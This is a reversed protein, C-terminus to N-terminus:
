FRRGSFVGIGFSFPSPNYGPGYGYGYRQEEERLAAYMRTLAASRVRNFDGYTSEGRYLLALAGSVESRAYQIHPSVGARDWADWCRRNAADFRQLGLRENPGPRRADSLMSMSAKEARDDEFPIKDRIPDLAPDSYANACISVADVREPKPAASCAALGVLAVGVVAVRKM